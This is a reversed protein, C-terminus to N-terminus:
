RDELTPKFWLRPYDILIDLVWPYRDRILLMTHYWDYRMMRDFEAHVRETPVSTFMNSIHQRVNAINGDKWISAYWHDLVNPYIDTGIQHTVMFRLGRLIRLPDEEFHLVPDGVTRLRRFVIDEEGNHPDLLTGDSEMAIANCTFDRRALDEFISAPTVTDPHRGDSYMAEKRCLTFDADVLGHWKDPSIRKDFIGDFTGRDVVVKARLTVFKPDEKWIRAAYDRLLETRMQEYSDAEVAFDFDKTARGLLHDRVAGGVLYLKM